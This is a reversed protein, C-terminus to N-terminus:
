PEPSRAVVTFGHKEFLRRAEVGGLFELFEGGVQDMRTGRILAVPYSIEPGEEVPVEYLLRVSDQRSVYDTRYVVGVVDVSGEVQALAARVDPTPSIRESVRDWASAGDPCTYAQLWDRAYRGAPVSDPDGIALYTFEPTCLLEPSGATARSSANAILVLSNSLLTRRTDPVLRDGAEVEDMWRESASLFVDARPAALLQQALAGSSAFNYDIEVPRTAAYAEGVEQIADTLSAAVFVVLSPSRDGGERRGTCATVGVVLALIAVIPLKRRM